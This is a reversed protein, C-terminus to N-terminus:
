REHLENLPVTQCRNKGLSALSVGGGGRRKEEEGGWREGGKREGERSEPSVRFSQATTLGNANLKHQVAHRLESSRLASQEEQPITTPNPDHAMLAAARSGNTAARAEADEQLRLVTRSSDGGGDSPLVGGEMETESAQEGAHGEVPRASRGSSKGATLRRNGQAAAATTSQSSSASSAAADQLMSQRRKTSLDFAGRKASNTAVKRCIAEHRALANPAFKRNCSPCPVREIEKGAIDAHEGREFAAIEEEISGYKLANTESQANGGSSDGGTGTSSGSMPGDHAHGPVIGGPRTHSSGDDGTMQEYRHAGGFGNIHRASGAAPPSTGQVQAQAQEQVKQPQAASVAPGAMAMPGDHAHGPIIGGPRTHSSGDDGTMQEYRHAGGLGNIHRATGAAPPTPSSQQAQAQQTQAQESATPTAAVSQEKSAPASESAKEHYGGFLDISTTGGPAHHVKTSSRGSSIDM